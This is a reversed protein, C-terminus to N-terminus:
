VVSKRDVRKGEIVCKTCSDFGTHYKVQLVYAKAPADCILGKIKINYLNHNFQIGNDILQTAENVFMELFTNSNDPKGEGFYIGIVYVQKSLTDSCLIPWMSKGSSKGVTAGDINIFLDINMDTCGTQERKKIITLVVKALGNHWYEGKVMSHVETIRPTKLLSRCDIPFNESTYKRFIRLLANVSNASPKFEKVWEIFATLFTETDTEETINSQFDLPEGEDPETLSEESLEDNCLNSVLYEDSIASGIADDVFGDTATLCQTYIISNANHPPPEQITTLNQRIEENELFSQQEIPFRQDINEDNSHLTQEFIRCLDFATQQQVLRRLHRNSYLRSPKQIRNM